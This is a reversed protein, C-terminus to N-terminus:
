TNKRLLEILEKGKDTKMYEAMAKKLNEHQEIERQIWNPFELELYDMSLTIQFQEDFLTEISSECFYFISGQGSVVCLIFKFDNIEFYSREEPWKMNKINSSKDERTDFSMLFNWNELFDDQSFNYNEKHYWVSDNAIVGKKWLSKLIEPLIFKRSNYYTEDKEPIM